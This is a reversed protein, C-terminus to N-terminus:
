LVFTWIVVTPRMLDGQGQAGMVSAGLKTINYEVPLASRRRYIEIGIVLDVPYSKLMGWDAPIRDLIVNADHVGYTALLDTIYTSKRRLLEARDIFTGSTGTRYRTTFGVRNLRETMRNVSSASVRIPPLVTFVQKLAFEAKIMTTDLTLLGEFPEFGIRRVNVVYHGPGLGRFAFEGQANTIGVRSRATDVILEDYTNGAADKTVKVSDVFMLRVDAAEVPLTTNVSRVEGVFRGGSSVRRVSDSQQGFLPASLVVCATALTRFFM